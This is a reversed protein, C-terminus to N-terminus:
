VRQCECRGANKDFKKKEKRARKDVKKKKDVETRKETPEIKV